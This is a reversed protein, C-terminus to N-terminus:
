SCDIDKLMPELLIRLIGSIYDFSIQNIKSIKVDNTMTRAHVCACVHVCEEPLAIPPPSSGVAEEKMVPVFKRDECHRGSERIITWSPHYNLEQSNDYTQLM